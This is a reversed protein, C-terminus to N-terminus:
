HAKEPEHGSAEGSSPYFKDLAQTNGQEIARYFEPMGAFINKQREEELLTQYLRSIRAKLWRVARAVKPNRLLQSAIM